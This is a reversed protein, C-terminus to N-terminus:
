SGLRIRPKKNSSNNQSQQSRKLNSIRSNGIQSSPKSKENASVESTFNAEKSAVSETEPEADEVVSDENSDENSNKNSEENASVESTVNAEKSAVSETEPEADEVVSDKNSNNSSNDQNIERRKLIVDRSRKEFFEAIGELAVERESGDLGKLTIESAYSSFKKFVGATFKDSLRLFVENALNNFKKLGDNELM